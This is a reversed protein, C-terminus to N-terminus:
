GAPHDHDAGAEDARLHGGGATLLAVVTVTTSARGTGM